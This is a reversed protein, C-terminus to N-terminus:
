ELVEIHELYGVYELGEQRTVYNYPDGVQSEPLGLKKWEAGLALEAKDTSLYHGVFATSSDEYPTFVEIIVKTIFM